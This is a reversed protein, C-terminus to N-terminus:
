YLKPLINLANLRSSLTVPPANKHAKSKKERRENIRKQAAKGITYEDPDIPAVPPPVLPAPVVAPAPAPVVAPVVAPAGAGPAPGPAGPQQGDMGGIVEGAGSIVVNSPKNVRIFLAILIVLLLCLLTLIHLENM